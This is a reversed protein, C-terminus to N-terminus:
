DAEDTCAGMEISALERQYFFYAEMEKCLTVYFIRYHQADAGTLNFALDRFFKKTKPNRSLAAIKELRKVTAESNPCGFAYLAKKENLTWEM